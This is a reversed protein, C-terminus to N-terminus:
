NQAAPKNVFGAIFLIWAFILGIGAGIHVLKAILEQWFTGGTAIAHKAAIALVTTIGWWSSAVEFLAMLRTLCAVTVMVLASRTSVSRPLALLLETMLICLMENLAFQIHANWALQPFPTHPVAFGGSLMGFLILM